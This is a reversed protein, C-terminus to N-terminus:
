NIIQIHIGVERVVDLLDVANISADNRFPLLIELNKYNIQAITRLFDKYYDINTENM